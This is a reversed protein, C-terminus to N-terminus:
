KANQHSQVPPVSVARPPVKPGARRAIGAARIDVVNAQTARAVVVDAEQPRDDTAFRAAAMQASASVFSLMGLLPFFAALVLAPGLPFASAFAVGAIAIELALVRAIRLGGLLLIPRTGLLTLATAVLAATTAEVAGLGWLGLPFVFSSFLCAGLRGGMVAPHEAACLDAVGALLGPDTTADDKTQEAVSTTAKASLSNTRNDISIRSFAARRM